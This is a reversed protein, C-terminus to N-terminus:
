NNHRREQQAQFVLPMGMSIGFGICAMGLRSAFNQMRARSELVHRYDTITEGTPLKPAHRRLQKNLQDFNLMFLVQLLENGDMARLELLEAETLDYEIVAAGIEAETEIQDPFECLSPLLPDGSPESNPVSM